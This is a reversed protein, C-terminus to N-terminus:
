WDDSDFGALLDSKPKPAAGGGTVGKVPAKAAAAANQKLVANEKKLSAAAKESQKGRYAVYATLANAGNAVAHAVEDPMETFDPYVAKLQAFEAALDREQKPAPAPEVPKPAEAAKPAAYIDELEVAFSADNKEDDTLEFSKGTVHSAVMHAHAETMGNRIEDQFAAIYKAKAQKALYRDYAAAKQIWTEVEDNSAEDINVDRREHDIKPRVIRPAKGVPETQGSLGEDTEADASRDQEETSDEDTMTLGDEETQTDSDEGTAADDAGGVSEDAQSTGGSWSDVKFFDDGESWGDPLMADDEEVLDTVMLEDENM